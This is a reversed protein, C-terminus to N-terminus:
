ARDARGYVDRAIRESIVGEALDRKVVAAAARERPDGYGGAGPTIIALAAAAAKAAASSAGPGGLAAPLRPRLRAM